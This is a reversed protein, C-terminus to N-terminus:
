LTAKRFATPSVGLQKKFFNSFYYEDEFGCAAAVEKISLDTDSLMAKAKQIRLLAIYQSPTMGTSQKFRRIFQVYSLESQEGIETLIIKRHLNQRIIKIARQITEDMRETSSTIMRNELRYQTVIDAFVASRLDYEDQFVNDDLIELMSLTSKIRDIDSFVIKEKAFLSNKARYRFFYITAPSLIERHYFEDKRFLAGENESVTYSGNRTSFQFSGSKVLAFIDDTESSEEKIFKERYVKINVLLQYSM